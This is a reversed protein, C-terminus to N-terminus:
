TVKIVVKNDVLKEEIECKGANEMIKKIQEAYTLNIQEPLAVIKRVCKRATIDLQKGDSVRILQFWDGEISLLTYIGNDKDNLHGIISYDLYVKEGVDNDNIRSVSLMLLEIPRWDFGMKCQHTLSSETAFCFENLLIGCRIKQLLDGIKLCPPNFNIPITILKALKKM